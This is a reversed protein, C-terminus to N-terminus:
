TGHREGLLKRDRGWVKRRWRRPMRVVYWRMDVVQADLRPNNWIVVRISSPIHIHRAAWPLHRRRWTDLHTALQGVVLKVLEGLPTHLLMMDSMAVRCDLPVIKGVVASRPIGVKVGMGRALPVHPTNNLNMAAVRPVMRRAIATSVLSNDM